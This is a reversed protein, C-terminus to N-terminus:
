GPVQVQVLDPLAEFGRRLTIDPGVRFDCSGSKMCSAPLLEHAPCTQMLHQELQIDWSMQWVQKALLIIGQYGDSKIYIVRFGIYWTAEITNHVLTVKAPEGVILLPTLDNFCWPWPTYVVCRLSWYWLFAWLFVLIRAWKVRRLKAMHRRGM